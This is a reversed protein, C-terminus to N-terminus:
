IAGIKEAVKNDRVECNIKNIMTLEIVKLLHLSGSAITFQIIM